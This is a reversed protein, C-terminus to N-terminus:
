RTWTEEFTDLLLQAWWLAPCAPEDDSETLTDSKLTCLVFAFGSCGVTVRSIELKAFTYM